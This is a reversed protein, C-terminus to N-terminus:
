ESVTFSLIRLANLFLAQWKRGLLPYADDDDVYRERPVTEVIMNGNSARSVATVCLLASIVDNGFQLYSGVRPFPGYKVLRSLDFVGTAHQAKEAGSKERVRFSVIISVRTM